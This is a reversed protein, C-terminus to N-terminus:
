PPGEPTFDLRRALVAAAVEPLSEDLAFAHARLVAIADVAPVALQAMVMGVAQNIRARAGWSEPATGPTEQAERVVAVAILDALQLLEDPDADIPEGDQRHLLLSGLVTSGARMPVATLSTVATRRIATENFQPWRSDVDTLGTTVVEGTAVAAVAPGEGLDDHIRELDEATRNTSAVLTRDGSGVVVVVSAGDAHVLRATAECLRWALPTTAPLAAATAMLRGLLASRDAM